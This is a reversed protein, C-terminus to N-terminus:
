DSETDSERKVGAISSNLFAITRQRRRVEREKLQKKTMKKKQVIPMPIGGDLPPTPAGEDGSNAASNAVSNAATSAPSNAKSATRSATRSSALRSAARSTPKSSEDFGDEVLAVKGKHTLRGADVHWIEPCLNGVFEENHSICVFAGDWNKIAVALGGLADRDLFNTPEDLILSRPIILIQWVVM